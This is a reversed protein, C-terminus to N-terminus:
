RFLFSAKSIWICNRRCFSIFEWPFNLLIHLRGIKFQSLYGFNEGVISDNSTNCFRRDSGKSHYSFNLSPLLWLGSGVTHLSQFLILQSGDARFNGLLRINTSFLEYIFWCCLILWPFVMCNLLFDYIDRLVPKLFWANLRHKIGNEQLPLRDQLSLFWVECNNKQILLNLWWLSGARICKSCFHKYVLSINSIM